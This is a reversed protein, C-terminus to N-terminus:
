NKFYCFDYNVWLDASRKRPNNKLAQTIGRTKTIFTVSWFALHYM